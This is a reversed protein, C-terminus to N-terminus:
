VVIIRALAQMASAGHSINHIPDLKWVKGGAYDRGVWIGGDYKPDISKRLTPYDGDSAYVQKLCLQLAVVILSVSLLKIATEQILKQRFIHITKNIM